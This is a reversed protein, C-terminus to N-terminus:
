DKTCILAQVMEPHLRSHYPDIVRGGASFITESAITSVQIVMVDHAMQSLIPYVETKNKWWALIDFENKKLLPEVM